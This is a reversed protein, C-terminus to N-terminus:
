IKEYLESELNSLFMKFAAKDASVTQIIAENQNRLSNIMLNIKLLINCDESLRETQTELIKNPMKVMNKVYGIQDLFQKKVYGCYDKLNNIDQKLEGLRM